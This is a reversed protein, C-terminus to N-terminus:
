CLDTELKSINLNNEHPNNRSRDTLVGTEEVEAGKLFSM